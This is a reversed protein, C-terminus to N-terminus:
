VDRALWMHGKIVALPTEDGLREVVFALAARAGMAELDIRDQGSKKGHQDGQDSQYNTYDFSPLSHPLPYHGEPGSGTTDEEGIACFFLQPFFRSTYANQVPNILVSMLRMWTTTM